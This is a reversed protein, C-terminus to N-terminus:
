SAARMPLLKGDWVLGATKVILLGIVLNSAVFSAFALEHMWVPAGRQAILMALTPLAAAGFSFAWYTPAFSQARIWALLRLLLLAQYLGYGLLGYAVLEAAGTLAVHAGSGTIAM